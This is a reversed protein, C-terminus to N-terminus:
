CTRFFAGLIYIHEVDYLDDLFAGHKRINEKVPKESLSFYTEVNSTMMEVKPLLSKKRRYHRKNQECTAEYWQGFTDNPDHGILPLEKTSGTKGHIYLINEEPIGYRTELFPTYNFTIFRAYTDIRIKRAEGTDPWELANIWERFWKNIDQWLREAEERVYDGAYFSPAYGDDESWTEPLMIEGCAFFYDRNIYGM